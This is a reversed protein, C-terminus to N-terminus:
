HDSEGPRKAKRHLHAFKKALTERDPAADLAKNLRRHREIDEPHTTAPWFGLERALERMRAWDLEAM